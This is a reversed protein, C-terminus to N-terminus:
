EREGTGRPSPSHVAGVPPHTVSWASDGACRDYLERLAERVNGRHRDFLEDVTLGGQGPHLDQVIGRLLPVSTECEVLTPLLRPRHSTIVLGRAARSRRLFRWWALRGTQEAGDFLIVDRDSLGRLFQRLFPGSFAPRERTLRLHRVGFGRAALREGLDELLTTKGRGEPGVIAGRYNMAALRELLQEWTWGQPRYRVRLVRDTAFPNDRAKM